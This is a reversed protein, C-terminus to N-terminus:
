GTPASDLLELLWRQACVRADGAGPLLRLMATTTLAESLGDRLAAADDPAVLVAGEDALAGALATETSTVVRCGHARAEIVALGIQERWGPVRRSPAVLVAARALTTHVEARDAVVVLDVDDHGQAWERVVEVRPGYGLVRLRWSPHAAAVQPWATMLLDIGKRESLEGVFTVVPEADRSPPPGPFCRPCAARSDPFTATRWRASPYAAAYTDAADASGFAVADLRLGNPGQSIPMLNEIAYTAAVQPRVAELLRLSAPWQATWLPETVELLGPPDAILLRQVEDLPAVVVPFPPHALLADDCDPHRGTAVVGFRDDLRDLRELHSSRLVPTYLVFDRM